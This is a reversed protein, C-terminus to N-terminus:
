LPRLRTTTTSNDTFMGSVSFAQTADDDKYGVTNGNADTIVMKNLLGWKLAQIYAFISGATPTGPIAANFQNTVETDISTKMTATFDGSLTMASGVAAPSGPLNTTKANIAAIDAEISVGAPAGLRAYSDGTQAAINQVSAPTSANLSTKMTSTFDGSLTMASGVAAPSAPLNATKANIAAIDAEISVGAPAGLRAYSDGTQASSIRYARLLPRMLSTKMTASFDGSLTAVPTAASAATTVSTKM